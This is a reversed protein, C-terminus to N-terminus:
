TIVIGRPNQNKKRLKHTVIRGLLAQNLWGQWLVNWVALISSNSYRM